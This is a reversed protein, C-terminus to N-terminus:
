LQTNNVGESLFRDVTVSWTKIVEAAHDKDMLAPASEVSMAIAGLKEDIVIDIMLDDKILQAIPLEDIISEDVLAAGEPVSYDVEVPRFVQTDTAGQSARFINVFVNTLPLRRGQTVWTDIDELGSQQVIATRQRLDEQLCSASQVLDDLVNVYVPLVNMCPFALKEVGRASGTRGAHWLGFIVTERSTYISQVSAWCALLIANLTLDLAQAKRELAKVSSVATRTTVITRSSRSKEQNVLSPFYTPTVPSPIASKWYANQESLRSPSSNFSRLFAAMDPISAPANGQCLLTLDGLLLSLSFADYQFHHMRLLLYTGHHSLLLIGKTQPASLTMPSSVITRMKNEVHSQLIGDAPEEIKEEELPIKINRSFTVIRPETGGPTCAFTSRLIPHYAILAEWGRRIDDLTVTSEVEYAFVHRFRSHGSNQWAGILWKMGETAHAVSTIQPQVTAPFRNVVKVFEEASVETSETADVTTDVEAAELAARSKSVLDGIRRSSVIDAVTVRLGVERCKAALAIATISDIGIAPLSLSPDFDEVPRGTISLLIGAVAPPIPSSAELPAGAPMIDGVDEHTATAIDSDSIAMHEPHNIMENLMDQLEEMATDIKQRDMVTQLCAMKVMFGDDLEFFEVNLPYQVHVGFEEFVHMKWIKSHHLSVMPQFLFLTHFMSEYGTATQIDRLSVHQWSLADVNHQHIQRILDQNSMGAVFEVRFPVTTLMPGIVDEAGEFSRGSVVHGFIVDLSSTLKAVFKAWVAQGICQLTAGADCLVKQIQQRSFSVVRSSVLAEPSSRLTHAPFYARRCHQLRQIWYATALHQELLIRPLLDFFQVSVPVSQTLYVQEVVELLKTVSLGDYLAHHMLLVLHTADKGQILRLYVQPLTFASEDSAKLNAVLMSTSDQLSEEIPKVHVAWNCPTATHCAQIWTKASSVYHFTTRLISLHQVVIDWATKLRSLDTQPELTMVFAHFYLQGSTALTTRAQSLMGAQLETTPFLSVKDEACLKYAFPDVYVQLEELQRYLFDKSADDAEQQVLHSPRAFVSLQRLTPHRLIDAATVTFGRQRLFRSLGVARISDLGVSILSTSPLLFDPSVRLFESVAMNLPQLDLTGNVDNEQVADKTVGQAPEADRKLDGRIAVPLSTGFGNELINLLVAEFNALICDVASPINDCEYYAVRIVLTDIKGDLLVEVSLPFDPRSLDSHLVHWAEFITEDKMTVAFLTDILPYGPRIWSQVQSLPLHEFAVAASIDEQIRHLCDELSLRIRVPLVTLMPYPAIEIGDIPILRGSRIVGFVIDDRCQVHQSLLIAFAYTLAAQLTVNQSAVLGQIASLSKTISVGKRQPQASPPIDRLHYTSWEFNSFQSVWFDRAGPTESNHLNELLGDLNCALKSSRHFLEDEVVKLVVPLSIGDFLSHHISLVLRRDDQQLYATLRFLPLVESLQNIDKALSSAEDALFSTCFTDDNDVSPPKELWPLVCEDPRLIVQVLQSGFFFVTRLIELRHMTTQWADRLLSNSVADSIKMIVHQVCSTPVSDSHYLVGGQIPLSPRVREIRAPPIVKEIVPLWEESFREIYGLSRPASASAPKILASIGVISPSQMIDAVSVLVDFAKNLDSALQALTLSDLGYGFLSAHIDFLSPHIRLRRSLQSVLKELVGPAPLHHAASPVTSHDLAILTEFGTEKFIQALVKSDAKGNPNLPFWSLPIIHTPRMYTALKEECGARLAELLGEAFPIIYPKVTRRTAVPVQYDWAVFSVLQLANGNAISPHSTLITEAELPLGLGKRAAERLVAVIGETEIRVGRLKIQADIRGIIDLTGDPFMRVLDGTRYAWSGSHPWEMFAKATLNPLRHYGRGVLPGSVVLEGVAGRPLINLDRDVIYSSVNAFPRGVNGTPTSSDVFRACCGITVESPGYFNALRIKPHEGWKDLISNSIKEGGSAIFRLKIASGAEDGEVASMTADILSPVLGVHTIELYKIHEALNELLESRPAGVITMGLSLPIFVEALHVDFAVSAIALYRGNRIDEMRVHAAFFSLALIAESLGEHTLLCGKPNGTTGSTYLMYALDRPSPPDVDADSTGLLIEQVSPDDVNVSEVGNFAGRSISSVIVFKAGSDQVIYLKRERPLEPDVPVYCGGSRLIGFLVVHFTPNRDMCVAVRDEPFLGIQILFRAFRNGGYHLDRYTLSKWSPVNGKSHDLQPYWCAATASPTSEVHPLIVDTAIRVPPIHSYYSTKSEPPLAEVTSSLDGTFRLPVAMRSTPATAIQVMLSEVQRLLTTAVPVNMRDLPFSLSLQGKKSQCYLLPTGTVVKQNEDCSRSFFATFPSEGEKSETIQELSRPSLHLDHTNDAASLASHVVTAWTTQDDWRLRFPFPTGDPPALVGVLVDTIGCYLGLLYAYAVLSLADLNATEPLSSTDLCTVTEGTGSHPHTRTNSLDPLEVRRYGDLINSCAQCATDDM